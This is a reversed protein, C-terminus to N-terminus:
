EAEKVVSICSDREGEKCQKEKFEAARPCPRRNGSPDHYRM